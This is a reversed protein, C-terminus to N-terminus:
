LFQLFSDFTFDAESNSADCSFIESKLTRFTSKKTLKLELLFLHWNLLTVAEEDAEQVLVNQVHLIFVSSGKM